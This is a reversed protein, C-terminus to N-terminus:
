RTTCGTYKGAHDDAYGMFVMKTSKPDLKKMNGRNKVYGIRGWKVLHDLIKPYEGYWLEDPSKHNVRNPVANHLKTATYVAEAWLKGQFVDDLKAGLMMAQARDRITVFKREVVGNTQPTHPATLELTIGHDRCVEGLGKVNEGANDCRLYKVVVTAGRLLLVLNNTVKKIDTKKNVFFSWAKRSKDDVILIWFKSGKVTNKYPGSIDLFLREGKAQAVLKTTKGVGKAKAKAYACAECTKRTGVVEYNRQKLLAKLPGESVHGYLEHADNIDIKKKEV